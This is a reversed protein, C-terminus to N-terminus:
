TYRVGSLLIGCHMTVKFRKKESHKSELTNIAVNKLEDNRRWYRIQKKGYLKCKFYKTNRKDRSTGNTNQIDEM